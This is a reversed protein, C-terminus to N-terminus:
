TFAKGSIPDGARRARTLRHLRTRRAGPKRHPITRGTKRAGGRAGRARGGGPRAGRRAVDASESSQRVRNASAGGVRVAICRAGNTDQRGYRGAVAGREGFPPRQFGEGDSSSETGGDIGERAGADRRAEAARGGARRAVLLENADM